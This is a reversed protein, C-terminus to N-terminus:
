ADGETVLGIQKLESVMRDTYTSGYGRTIERAADMLAPEGHLQARVLERVTTLEATDLTGLSHQYVFNEFDRLMLAVYWFFIDQEAETLAEGRRSKYRASRLDENTLHMELGNRRANALEQRTQARRAVTEGRIQMALFGLTVIIALAAVADTVIGLAELNM